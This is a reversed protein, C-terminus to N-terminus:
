MQALETLRPMLAPWACAGAEVCDEGCVAELSPEMM